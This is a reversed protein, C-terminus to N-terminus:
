FGEEDSHEHKGSCGTCGGDTDKQEDLREGKFDAFDGEGMSIWNLYGEEGCSPCNTDPLTSIKREEFKGVYLEHECKKCQFIYDPALAMGLAVKWHDPVPIYYFRPPDPCEMEDLRRGCEIIYDLINEKNIEM